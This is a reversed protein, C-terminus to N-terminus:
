PGVELAQEEFAVVDALRFLVRSGLRVAPPCEGRHRAAYIGQPTTRWRRALDSITLLVEDADANSMAATM